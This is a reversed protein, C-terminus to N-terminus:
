YGVANAGYEAQSHTFGEYELQSILSQRSFSSYDLYQQAKKAAQENWDAGCNDAGYLAESHSFGEYELQEVLGSYSFATYDLYQLAKNLAQREGMSANQEAKSDGTGTSPTTTESDSSLDGESDNMFFVVDIIYKGEDAEALGIGFLSEGNDRALALNNKQLFQFGSEKLLDIYHNYKEDADTNNDSVYYGYIKNGDEDNYSTFLIASDICSDLTPVSPLESYYQEKM